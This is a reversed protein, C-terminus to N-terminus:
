IKSALAKTPGSLPCNESCSGWSSKNQSTFCWGFSGYREEMICHSGEDRPDSDFVCPTGPLATTYGFAEARSDERTVCAMSWNGPSSGNATSNLTSDDVSEATANLGVDTSVNAAGM